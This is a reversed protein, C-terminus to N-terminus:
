HAPQAKQLLAAVDTWFKRWADREQSPLAPLQKHDRISILDTDEQWHRLVKCIAVRHKPAGEALRKNLADLDARLWDLAQQRLRQKQQADLKQADKGQGAAARAASCAANYRHQSQLSPDAAFADAYLRAAAVHRGQSPQQCLQALDLAEAAGTPGVEGGLVAQLKEGLGIARECQRLQQAVADRLPHRPPLLELCRRTAERAATFEGCALLAQGLAGHSLPDKPDLDLSRRYCRIAEEVDGKDVLATGLNKHYLANKPALDIAKRFCRVAEGSEGKEKLAKGLNNHAQASKPDLEIARRYCRIAEAVEEKKYLANGLGTHYSAYQPALDLARRFYPIAADVQGKMFLIDGLNYHAQPLKPDCDIAQRYCRIAEALKGREKLATGLECHATAFRPDLDITKHYCCIAEDLQGKGALVIGLNCHAFALKPDLDIAHRYCRIASDPDGKDKLANGLNSHATAYKPNLDIAQRYCRIAADAEGNDKHANGLNLWAGPSQSRLAVAAMLYRVAEERQPPTQEGLLQGLDHNIWFDQPYRAQGARLLDLSAPTQQLRKLDAALNVLAAAPLAQAAAQHALAALATGNQKNWAAQWRQRFSGPDPDAAQLVAALDEKEKPDTTVRAWDHLAALLESDLPSARLLAATAQADRLDLGYGTLAERYRPVMAASDFRGEKVAAMELRIRDLEVRLRSDRGKQDVEAHLARVREALEPSVTATALAAEARHLAAMALTVIQQWREPDRRTQEVEGSLWTEAERVGAEAESQARARRTAREQQYWAALGGAVAVASLVLGVLAMTRRRVRREALAKGQEARATARAEETRAEAAAREREAARLQEQVDQQYAVVRRVVMGADRPRQEIDPSLCEKALGILEVDAGCCDLRAFAASLEGLGARNLVRRCVEPAYPPQGTLIECLMAGLGFVDAREDLREVQGLAQEPAMYAPTGLVTGVATQRGPPSPTAAEVDSSRPHITSGGATPMGSEVPATGAYLNKALGWDMVQVEGFRGVMVNDPKLDRHIVRRSHAFALAQCVQEFIAVFRPLEQQPTARGALLAALTQGRVLELALFPLGQAEQGLEHVAVIGPHALQATIQAEDIFRQLLDPHDALEPRLVKVALDRNLGPDRARMVAAMGGHAIEEFVEYRGLRRPSQPLVAVPSVQRGRPLAAEDSAMLSADYASGSAHVIQADSTRDEAPALGVRFMMEALVLRPALRDALHPHACLVAARDPQDGAQLQALFQAVLAEVDDSLPPPTGDPLRPSM